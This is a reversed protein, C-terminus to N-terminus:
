SEIYTCSPASESQKSFDGDKKEPASEFDSLISENLRCSIKQWLLLTSVGCIRQLILKKEANKLARMKSCKKAPAKSTAICTSAENQTRSPDEEGKSLMEAESDPNIADDKSGSDDVFVSDMIVADYDIAM